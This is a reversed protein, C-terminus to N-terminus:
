SPDALARRSEDTRRHQPGAALDLEFRDLGDFSLEGCPWCASASEPVVRDEVKWGISSCKTFHREFFFQNGTVATFGNASQSLVQFRRSRLGSCLDEHRAGQM